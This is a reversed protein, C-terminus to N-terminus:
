QPKYSFNDNFIIKIKGVFHLAGSHVLINLRNKYSINLNGLTVADETAM